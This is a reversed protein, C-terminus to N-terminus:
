LGRLPSDFLMLCRIAARRPPRFLVRAECGCASCAPCRRRAGASRWWACGRWRWRPPWNGALARAPAPSWCWAAATGTLATPPRRQQRPARQCSRAMSRLAPSSSHTTQPQRTLAKLNGDALQIVMCSWAFPLTCAANGGGATGFCSAAWKRCCGVQQQEVPLSGPQQQSGPLWSKFTAASNLAASGTTPSTPSAPGSSGVGAPVAAAAAAAAAAGAAGAAGVEPGGFEGALARQSIASLQRYAEDLEGNVVVYDYLGAERVSELEEQANRLRTTIQEESDAALRPPTGACRLWAFTLCLLHGAPLAQHITVCVLAARSPHCSPRARAVQGPLGSWGAWSM